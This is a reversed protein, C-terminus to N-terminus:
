SAGQARKQLLTEAGQLLTEVKVLGNLLTALDAATLRLGANRLRLEAHPLLKRATALTALAEDLDKRAFPLPLSAGDEEIGPAEVRITGGGVDVTPLTVEREIRIRIRKTPDGNNLWGEWGVWGASPPFRRSGAVRLRRTPRDRATRWAIVMEVGDPGAHPTVRGLNGKTVDLAPCGNLVSFEYQRTGPAPETPM